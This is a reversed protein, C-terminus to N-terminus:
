NDQMMLTSMLPTVVATNDLNACDLLHHSRFGRVIGLADSILILLVSAASQSSPM